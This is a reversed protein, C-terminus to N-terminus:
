RVRKIFARKERRLEQEEIYESIPKAPGIHRNGEFELALDVIQREKMPYGCLDCTVPFPDPHPEDCRLCQRGERLLRMGEPTYTKVYDSQLRDTKGDAWVAADDEEAVFKAFPLGTSRSLRKDADRMHRVSEVGSVKKVPFMKLAEE